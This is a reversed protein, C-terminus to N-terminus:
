GDGRPALITYNGNAQAVLVGDCRLQSELNALQRGRHVIRTDCVITGAAVPKFYNIKVEITACREGPALTTYLAAGMGTDALAFLVAGHAVGHPNLHQPALTLECRSAGPGAAPHMRLGLLDAFPHPQPVPM